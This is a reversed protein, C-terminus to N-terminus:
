LAPTDISLAKEEPAAVPKDETLTEPIKMERNSTMWLLIDYYARINGVYGVAEHGRAYGYKTKSFYREQTLKPLVARVDIWRDPNGSSKQVLRRADMLHGMGINYAALAMWTKDPDKLQGRMNPMRAKLAELYRGGGSISQRPNLRNVGMERATNKTLMMLGRVGTPSVADNNWHSEQYGVAALLRWDIGLKKAVSQFDKRYKPLREEVQRAFTKGGVFGVREIHGFYRDVIRKMTNSDKFGALFADAKAYLSSGGQLPFAWALHSTESLNFAVRLSPYYRQNVKVLNSDAITYDLKKNAVRFLLEEGNADKDVTFKLNPHTRRLRENSDIYAPMTLHGSVAALNKPKHQGSRYIVQRTIEFYPQTFRVKQERRSTIGLGAAFEARGDRVAKIAENRNDVVVVKLKVKLQKAWQRALDYEFGIPGTAALYYTTASNVTAM